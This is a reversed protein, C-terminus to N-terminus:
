AQLWMINHTPCDNSASVNGKDSLSGQKMSLKKPSGDDGALELEHDCCGTPWMHHKCDSSEEEDASLSLLYNVIDKLLLRCTCFFFSFLM